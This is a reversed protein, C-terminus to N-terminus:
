KTFPLFKGFTTALYSGSPLSSVSIWKGNAPYTTTFVVVGSVNTISLTGPQSSKIYISTRSSSYYFSSIRPTGCARQVSDIPPVGSCGIPQSTYTRTQQGNKNCTSWSSYTFSCVNACSRQVSDLPPTTTCGSPSISYTRTQISNVCTGWQGYTFTCPTSGCARIISDTPPLTGCNSPSKTYTRTQQGNTCVSWIGYTFSTCPIVCSRSISDAPPTGTCGAPSATYSRTQTTGNCASWAGYTFTCAVPTSPSYIGIFPTVGVINNGAFDTTFVQIPVGNTRAYSTDVLRLDWNEPYISNTTDIFLSGSTMLREKTGRFNLTGGLSTAYRASGRLYYINASRKYRNRDYVGQTGNTCYFINNRSDIMTDIWSGYTTNDSAYQFAFRVGSWNSFAANQPLSWTYNSVPLYFKINTTSARTQTCNVSLTIQNGNIATVTVTQYNKGLISDNNAFAVSGLSIGTASNVTITNSGATTAATVSIPAQNWTSYPDRCFWWPYQTGPRWGQGDGYVDIGFGNGVHRDRNNSIITNNWFALHHNNGIFSGTSGHMYGFQSSNIIKNFAFTDYQAGSLTDLKDLNGIEFVGGCDIITNYAIRSYKLNFIDFALGLLGNTSSIRGSKAWAGKIYNHHINVNFGYLAEFAGAGVDNIGATDPGPKLNTFTNYAFESNIAAVMQFGYTVNNFVCNKVTFNTVMSVRRSPDNSSPQTSTAASWEGIIWGSSFGPTTKDAESMRFDNSQIGDIIIDHVGGFFIIARSERSNPWYNVPAYAKPNLWNPLPLLPDGYNTFVIPNTPTGSPATWYADKNWWFASAYSQSSSGYFVDGRKFCLTDGPQFCVTGSTTLSTLKTLTKWPTAPNQAQAISYSDSGISSWYFKRGFVLMPLMMALLLLKKM